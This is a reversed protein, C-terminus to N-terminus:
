TQEQKSRNTKRFATPTMGMYRRFTKLFHTDNNIGMQYSIESLKLDAKQLLLQRAREIRLKNIFDNVSCGTEEKFGRALTHLVAHRASKTQPEEKSEKISM